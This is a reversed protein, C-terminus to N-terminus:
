ARTKMQPYSNRGWSRERRYERIWTNVCGPLCMAGQVHEDSDEGERGELTGTQSEGMKYSVNREVNQRLFVTTVICIKLQLLLYM